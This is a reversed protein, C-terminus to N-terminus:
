KLLENVTQNFEGKWKEYFEGTSPGSFGAHVKVVEHKKNLFITTPFSMFNKLGPIKEMPKDESRFGAILLPYPIKLKKQTKKLQVKALDPTLSREFALAILEIGRKNNEKYWPILFQTEDLCNPCWSGFIQIIVPKNKFKADKLSVQKGNLDPFSFSLSEVQTHKYADPLQAKSDKKGTIKTVNTSLVKAEIKKEKKVTGKVLYNYAGDFSAAEFEDGSIYGEMYRYDGTPTLISGHLENGKQEFVIVGQEKDGQDNLLTVAWRGSLDAKPKNKKQPFRETENFTARVPMTIKPNKNHRVLDGLMRGSKPPDMELSMEYTQLPIIIKNNSVTIDSLTISEKGNKLIGTYKNKVKKFEIIFPVVGYTTKLEFRWPGTNLTESYASFTALILILLTILSTKKMMLKLGKFDNPLIKTWDYYKTVKSPPDHLLEDYAL